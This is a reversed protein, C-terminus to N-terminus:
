FGDVGGLPDARPAREERMQRVLEGMGRKGGHERGSNGGRMVPQNDVYGPRLNRPWSAGQCQFRGEFLEVIRGNPLAGGHVCQHAFRHEAVLVRLGAGAPHQPLDALAGADTGRRNVLEVGNVVGAMFTRM